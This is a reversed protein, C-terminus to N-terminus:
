KDGGERKIFAGKRSFYNWSIRLNKVSIVSSLQKGDCSWNIKRALRLVRYNVRGEM